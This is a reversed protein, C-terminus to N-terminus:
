TTSSRRFSQRAIAAGVNVSSVFTAPTIRKEDRLRSTPVLDNDNGDKGKCANNFEVKWEGSPTMVGDTAPICYDNGACNWKPVTLERSSPCRNSAFGCPAGPVNKVYGRHGLSRIGLYSVLQQAFFINSPDLEDDTLCLRPLANEGEAQWLVLLEM